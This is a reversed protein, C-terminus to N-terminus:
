SAGSTGGTSGIGPGGQRATTDLRDFTASLEPDFLTIAEQLDLISDDYPTIPAVISLRYGAAGVADGFDYDASIERQRRLSTAPM